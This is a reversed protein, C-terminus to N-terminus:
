RMDRRAAETFVVLQRFFDDDRPSVDMRGVRQLLPDLLARCSGIHQAPLRKACLSLEVSVEHKDEGRGGPIFVERFNICPYGQHYGRDGDAPLYTLMARLNRPAEGDGLECFLVFKNGKKDQIVLPDLIEFAGVNDRESYRYAPVKDRFTAFTNEIFVGIRHSLFAIMDMIEQHEADTKRMGRLVVKTTTEELLELETMESRKRGIERCFFTRM